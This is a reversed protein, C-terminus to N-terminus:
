AASPQNNVRHARRKKYYIYIFMHDIVFASTAIFHLLHHEPYVLYMFITNLGTGYTRLWTVWASYHEVSKEALINILYLTSLIIQCTYATHAGIPTDHGQAIMLYYLASFFLVGLITIVKGQLPTYYGNAQKYGYRYIGYILYLDIVIWAQYVWQAILGMNTAFAFGWLWEWSFNGTAAIMPMEIYKKQYINKIFILYVGVWMLCGTIFLTLQLPTYMSTNLLQENM